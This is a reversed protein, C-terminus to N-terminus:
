FRGLPLGKLNALVASLVVMVLSLLGPPNIAAPIDDAQAATLVTRDTRQHNEWQSSVPNPATHPPHFPQEGPIDPRLIM